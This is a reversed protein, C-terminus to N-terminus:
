KRIYFKAGVALSIYRLNKFYHNQIRAILNFDSTHFDYYFKVRDFYSSSSNFTYDFDQGLFVNFRVKTSFTYYNSPYQDPANVWFQRGSTTSVYLGARLPHYNLKEFVPIQFPTYTQRLTLTFKVHETEYKPVFGVLVDTAWRKNKSYDYGFGVSLLGIGGAGQLMYNSPVFRFSPMRQISDAAQELLPKHEAKTFASVGLLLCILLLYKPNTVLSNMRTPTM